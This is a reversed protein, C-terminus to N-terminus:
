ECVCVCARRAHVNLMPWSASIHGMYIQRLSAWFHRFIILVLDITGFAFLNEMEFMFKGCVCVGPAPEDTVTDFQAAGSKDNTSKLVNHPLNRRM